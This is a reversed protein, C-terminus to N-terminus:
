TPAGNQVLCPDLEALLVGEGASVVCPSSMMEELARLRRLGM